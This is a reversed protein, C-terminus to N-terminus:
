GEVRFGSAELRFGSVRVRCVLGSVRFLLIRADREKLFRNHTGFFVLDAGQPIGFRVLVARQQIEFYNRGRNFEL